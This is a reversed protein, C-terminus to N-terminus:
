QVGGHIPQAHLWLDFAQDIAASVAQKMAERDPMAPAIAQLMVPLALTAVLEQPFEIEKALHQILKAQQKWIHRAVPTLKKPPEINM